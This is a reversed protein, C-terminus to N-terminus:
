VAGGGKMLSIALDIVCGIVYPIVSLIIGCGYGSAFLRVVEISDIM